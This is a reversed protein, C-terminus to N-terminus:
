RTLPNGCTRGRGSRRGCNCRHATTPSPLDATRTASMSSRASRVSHSSGAYGCRSPPPPWTSRINPARATSPDVHAVVERVREGIEDRHDQYVPIDGVARTVGPLLKTRLEIHLRGAAANITAGVIRDVDDSLVSAASRVITIWASRLGHVSRQDRSRRAICRVLIEGFSDGSHV